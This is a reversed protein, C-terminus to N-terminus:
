TKDEVSLQGTVVLLNKYIAMRSLGHGVYMPDYTKGYPQGTNWCCFMEAFESALDLQHAAAFEALLELAVRFHFAPQLLDRVAGRREVMHYGMIQTYGWSTALERLGEDPLGALESLHNAGFPPTLFHAHFDDAKPHLVRGLKALLVEAHISGYAPAAGSVVAALHRYVAPEFRAARDKAGSENATLAGLFEPPVSSSKCAALIASNCRDFVRAVLKQEALAHGLGEETLNWDSNPRAGAAKSM